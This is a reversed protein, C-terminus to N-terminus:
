LFLHSIFTLLAVCVILILYAYVEPTRLMNGPYPDYKSIHICVYIYMYVPTLHSLHNFVFFSNHTCLCRFINEDVTLYMGRPNEVHKRSPSRRPLFWHRLASYPIYDCRSMLINIYILICIYTYM